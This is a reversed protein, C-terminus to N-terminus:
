NAVGERIANSFAAGTLDRDLAARVRPMVHGAARLDEIRRSGDLLKLDYLFEPLYGSAFLRWDFPAGLGMADTLMWVETTCNETLTNYFVPKVARENAADLLAILLKGAEGSNARTRFLQIDEKPFHIRWGYFDREDGALISLEYAKFFGAVPSYSEDTEKRIEVSLSLAEGDQWVFSFYTHAIRPGKWYLSLVDVSKLQTLSYRRTEWREDATKPGTWNFNRVNKVTLADGERMYTLLRAMEPSWVRDNSPEILIFWMLIAAFPAALAALARWDNRRLYVAICALAFAFWALALTGNILKGSPAHYWVVGAAFAAALLLGAILLGPLVRLSLNQM